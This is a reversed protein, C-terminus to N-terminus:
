SFMYSHNRDWSQSSGAGQKICGRKFSFQSKLGFIVSNEFGVSFLIKATGFYVDLTIMARSRNGVLTMPIEPSSFRFLESFYYKFSCLQVSHSFARKWSYSDIWPEGGWSRGGKLVPRSSQRVFGCSRQPRRIWEM